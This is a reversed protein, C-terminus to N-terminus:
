IGFPGHYGGAVLAIAEDRPALPFVRVEGPAVWGFQETVPRM